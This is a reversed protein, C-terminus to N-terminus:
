KFIELLIDDEIPEEKWDEIVKVRKNLEEFKIDIQQINYYNALDIDGSTIKDVLINVEDKTYYNLLKKEISSGIKM